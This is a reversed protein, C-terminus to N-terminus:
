LKPLINVRICLMAIILHMTNQPIQHKGARLLERPIRLGHLVVGKIERIFRLYDRMVIERVAFSFANNVVLSPVSALERLSENARCKSHESALSAYEAVMSSM